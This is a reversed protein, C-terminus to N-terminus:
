ASRGPKSAPQETPAVPRSPVYMWLLVVAPAFYSGPRWWDWFGAALLVLAGIIAVEDIDVQQWAWRAAPAIARGMAVFRLVVLQRLERM